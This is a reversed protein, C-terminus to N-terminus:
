NFMLVDLKVQDVTFDEGARTCSNALAATVRHQTSSGPEMLTGVLVPVTVSSSAPVSPPVAFTTAKGDVSIVLANGYSGTCASPTKVTVTGALLDLEGAAQTWGNSTLPVNTSAGHPASVSGTSRAKAGIYAGGAPGAPGRAGTDGKRLTGAKFDAKTLTRNVVNASSVSNGALKAHTVAGQALARTRVSGPTLRVAAYSSGGLAVFLALYAVLNHKLHFLIRQPM